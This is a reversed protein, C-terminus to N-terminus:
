LQVVRITEGSEDALGLLKLGKEKAQGIRGIAADTVAEGPVLFPVGPPYIMAYEAATKGASQALPVSSYPKNMAEYIGMVVDPQPMGYDETQRTSVRGAAGDDIEKLADFLRQFGERSDGVSTMALVYAPAEMETEVQYRERLIKGLQPGTLGARETRIVLKSPEKNAHSWLVLRNWKEAGAYFQSLEEGYHFFAERGEKALFSMCQDISSLLVYSPSSTEYIDLYREITGCLILESRCHLLATQTLAPLTKHLSEVVLDAGQSVAPEPVGRVIGHAWTFHAGHAADVIVPINQAHAARSIAAIDSVVGEYTPSTVLIASVPGGGEAPLHDERSSDALKREVEEVPIGLSIGTELDIDPMLYIPTLGLLYIAHYVSRHCGRDVLIRDGRKCCASVAALIGCTSGGVLPYTEKTGYIHKMWDMQERIIGEPHHLNDMGEVETMDVSYPNVMEFVPNRKHGPMHM